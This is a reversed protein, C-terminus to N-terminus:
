FPKLFGLLQRKGTTKMPRVTYVCANGERKVTGTSGSTNGGVAQFNKNDASLVMETHGRTTGKDNWIAMAGRLPHYKVRQKKPTKHWVAYCLESPYIPSKIGTKYEAFAIGTQQLAMCWPEGEAKGITDQIAEVMKGDNRGTAETIGVCAEVVLSYIMRADNRKLADLYMANNKLKGELYDIMTKNLQRGNKEISVTEGKSFHMTKSSMIKIKTAKRFQSWYRAAGRWKGNVKGHLCKDTTVWKTFIILAIDINRYPDHLEKADKVLPKKVQKLYSNSSEISIQFLGRSIVNQGKSDPFDEKYSTAPKWHSEEYSLAVLLEAWFGRRIDSPMESYGKVYTDVDVPVCNILADPINKIIYEKWERNM